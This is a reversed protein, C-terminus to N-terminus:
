RFSVDKWLYREDKLMQSLEIMHPKYLDVLISKTEELIDGSKKKTETVRIRDLTLMKTLTDDPPIEPFFYLLFLYTLKFM